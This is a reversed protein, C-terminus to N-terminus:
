LLSALLRRVRAPRRSATLRSAPYLVCHREDRAVSFEVSRRRPSPAIRTANSSPKRNEVAPRGITSGSPKCRNSANTASRCRATERLSTEPVSQGSAVSCAAAPLKRDQRQRSALPRCRPISDFPKARRRLTSTVTSRQSARAIARLNSVCSGQTRTGVVAMFQDGHERGLHKGLPVVVPCEHFRFGPSLQAKVCELCQGAM